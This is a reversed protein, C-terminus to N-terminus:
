ETQREYTMVANILGDINHESAEVDPEYGADRVAGSTIPGISAIKFNQEGNYIAFFNKATSSSTFTVWNVPREDMIARLVDKEGTAPVTRYVTVFDFAGGSESIAKEIVDRAMNSGPLLFRKEEVTHAQLFEEVFQEAVFRSPVFDVRLHMARLRDATASGIAAFKANGVDRVDRGTAFFKEFFIDVGNVSTFIIWDYDSSSAIAKELDASQEVAEIAITPFEVAEAGLESLAASLRSAQHRSRTIVIRRGFLPRNEFWSLEDRLGVVEGVVILAPPKVGQRKVEDEITELTGVATKQRPLTGWEVLAAPTSAPRGNAILQEVIFPLKGVGMYFVLTDIGTALKAWDISSEDKDPSEHGTVFAVSSSFNRDTVPIGAYALAAIGSTIGPVIEFAVGAERLALAEEGGRGFTFPDGGKLRVIRKGERAKEILLACIEPQKMSHSGAKKGVYIRECDEPVDRLFIDSSLYDYLLVEARALCEVGRLTMLGPDGPGAGVLYVKGEAM